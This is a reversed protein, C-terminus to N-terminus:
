KQNFNTHFHILNEKKLYATTARSKFDGGLDTTIRKPIAEKFINKFCSIINDDSFTTMMCVYVKRSFVDICCLFFMYPANYEKYELYAVDCDWQYNIGSSVVVRRRPFRYKIKRNILYSEEAFSVNQIVNKNSISLRDKPEQSKWLKSSNTFSRPKYPIEWQEKVTQEQETITTDEM